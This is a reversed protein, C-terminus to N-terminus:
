AKTAPNGTFMARINGNALEETGNCHAGRMVYSDGNDGVYSVTADTISRITTVDYGTVHVIDCTVVAPELVESFVLENQDTMESTRRAGGPQLTAGPATRFVEGDADVTVRGIKRAM